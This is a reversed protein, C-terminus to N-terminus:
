PPRVRYPDRKCRADRPDYRRVYPARSGPRPSDPPRSAVKRQGEGPGSAGGRDPSQDGGRRGPHRRRCGYGARCGGWADPSYGLVDVELEVPKSVGRLTLNGHVIAKDKGKPVVKTSEFTMKPHKEVDFFDPGRLHNDRDDHDTDISATDIEVSLKATSLNEPDLKITGSYKGFRGPVKSVFHRIKFGLRSHGQDISYTEM